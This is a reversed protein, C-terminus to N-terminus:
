VARNRSSPDREANPPRGPGRKAELATLREQLAKIQQELAELRKQTDLNFAVQAFRGM